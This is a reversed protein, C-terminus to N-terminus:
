NMSKPLTKFSQVDIRAGGSKPKMDDGIEEGTNRDFSGRTYEGACQSYGSASDQCLVKEVIVAGDANTGAVVLDGNAGFFLTSMSSSFRTNELDAVRVLAQRRNAIVGPISWVTIATYAGFDRVFEQESVVPTPGTLWKRATTMYIKQYFASRVREPIERRTGVNGVIMIGPLVDTDLATEAANKASTSKANKVLQERLQQTATAGPFGGGSIKVAGDTPIQQRSACASFGVSIVLILLSKRLIHGKQSYHFNLQPPEVSDPIGAM